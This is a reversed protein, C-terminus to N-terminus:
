RLMITTALKKSWSVTATKPSSENDVAVTWDSVRRPQVFTNLSTDIPTNYKSMVLVTSCHNQVMAPSAPDIQWLIPAFGGLGYDWLSNTFQFPASKYGGAPVSFIFGGTGTTTGTQSRVQLFVRMVPNTGELRVTGGPVNINFYLKAIVLEANEVVIQTDANLMSYDANMGNGFTATSGSRIEFKSDYALQIENNCLKLGHTSFASVGNELRLTSGMGVTMLNNISIPGSFVFTSAYATTDFMDHVFYNFAEFSHASAAIVTINVNSAGVAFGSIDVDADLMITAVTNDPFAASTRSTLPFGRSDALSSVWNGSDSWNGTAGSGTWTYSAMDVLTFSGGLSSTFVVEGCENSCVLTYAVPSSTWALGSSADWAISWTGDAAVTTTARTEGGCQLLVYTPAVGITSLTGSFALQRQHSNDVTVSSAIASAGRMTISVADNTAVSGEVGTAIFRCWYTAGPTVGPAEFGFVGNAGCTTALRSFTAFTEDTSYEMAVAVQSLEGYSVSVTGTAALVNGADGCLDVSVFSPTDDESYEVFGVTVNTISAGYNIIPGAAFAGSSNAATGSVIDWFGVTAGDSLIVPVLSTAIVDNTYHRWYAMRIPLRYNDRTTDTGNCFVHMSSSSIWSSNVGSYNNTKVSGNGDAVVLSTKNPVAHYGQKFYYWLNATQLNPTLSIGAFRWPVNAQTGLWATLHTTADVGGGGHIIGQAYNGTRMVGGEIRSLPTAFVGTDIDSSVTSDAYELRAAYAGDKLLSSVLFFRLAKYGASGWQPPMSYTVLTDAESVDAVKVSHTWDALDDGMDSEAFAAYLTGAACSLPELSVDVSSFAGGTTHTAAIAIERSGTTSAMITSYDLAVDSANTIIDGYNIIPGATLGACEVASDTVLNWFGVTTGDPFLVPVLSTAIVDNTYHRWYAMRLPKRYTAETGNNFLHVPVSTWATSQADYTATVSGGNGDVYSISTRDQVVYYWLDKTMMNPHSAHGGFRCNMNNQSGIWLSFVTGGMGHIAIQAADITRMVGTEVRSSITAPIGTNVDSSTSSDVYELRAAYEGDKLVSSVLFFRLFRYGVDGWSSPVSYSLSTDGDTVDAIKAVHPWNALDGGMDSDAFAAYLTGTACYIPELSLDVSALTGGAFHTGKVTVERSGATNAATADHAIMAAIAVAFLNWLISKQVKM